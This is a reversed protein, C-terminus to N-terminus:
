ETEPTTSMAERDLVGVGLPKDRPFTIFVDPWRLSDVGANPQLFRKTTARLKGGNDDYIIIEKIAGSSTYFIEDVWAVHEFTGEPDTPKGWQAIDGVHPEQSLVAGVRDRAQIAWNQASDFNSIKPMWPNNKALMFAAFSTCSHNSGDSAPKGWQHVGYPDTGSYGFHEVCRYTKPVQGLCERQDTFAQAPSGAVLLAFVSACISVTIKYL